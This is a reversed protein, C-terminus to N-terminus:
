SMINGVHFGPVEIGEELGQEVLKAVVSTAIRDEARQLRPNPM